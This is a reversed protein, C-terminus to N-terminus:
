KKGETYVYKLYHFDLLNFDMGKIWTKVLNLNVSYYLPAVPMDDEVILKEAQGLLKNRAAKDVTSSAQKILSDFAPNKYGPDNNGAGTTFLDGLFTNPDPYDGGWGDRSIDYTKNQRNQIVVPFEQSEVSVDIGLNEKWQQQIFEYVAKHTANVNYIVTLKPFGKGDAFGADALLKKAAAVDTKLGAPGVKTAGSNYGDFAPPVMTYAPQQGGKTIKDVIAQRDIAQSLAKRVRPDDLPKKAVNFAIYQTTLQPDNHYEPKGKWNALASAPITRVWENEGKEFQALATSDDDVPLLTIKDLFVSKADWYNANKVLTIHDHDKWESIKFAGNGVFNEPKTWNNGFKEVATKSVPMLTYFSTVSLFYPTPDKLTVVLTTKDKAKIGVTSADKTKGANFDAAGQVYATVKEAYPSPKGANVTPDIVRLWSYVFDDATIPDGNSFKADSRLTFTFTKVDASIDWKTAVGPKADLTKPDYVTLGEFIQFAVNGSVNDTMLGPDLSSPESSNNFVVEQKVGAPPKGPQAQSGTAPTASTTSGNNCAVLGLMLVLALNVGWFPKKRLM